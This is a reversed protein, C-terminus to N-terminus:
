EDDHWPSSLSRQRDLGRWERLWAILGLRLVLVVHRCYQHHAALNRSHRSSNWRPRLSSESVRPGPQVAAGQPGTLYELLGSRSTPGPRRVHDDPCSSRKGLPGGSPSLSHRARECLGAPLVARFDHGLQVTWLRKLLDRTLVVSGRPDAV